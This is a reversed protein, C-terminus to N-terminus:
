CIELKKKMGKKPKESFVHPYMHQFGKKSSGVRVNKANGFVLLINRGGRVDLESNDKKGQHLEEM